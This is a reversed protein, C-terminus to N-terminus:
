GVSIALSVTEEFHHVDFQGIIEPPKHINEVCRLKLNCWKKREFNAMAQSSGVNCGNESNSALRLAGFAGGVWGTCGCPTGETLPIICETGTETSDKSPQWQPLIRGKQGKKAPFLRLSLWAPLKLNKLEFM